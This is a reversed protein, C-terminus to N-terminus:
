LYIYQISSHILTWSNKTLYDEIQQKEIESLL